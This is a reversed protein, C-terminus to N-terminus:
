WRYAAARTRAAANLFNGPLTTDMVLWSPRSPRKAANQELWFHGDDDVFSRLQAYGILETWTSMDKLTLAM